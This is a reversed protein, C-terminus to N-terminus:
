HLHCKSCPHAFGSVLDMISFPKGKVVRDHVDEVAEKLLSPTPEEDEDYPITSRHVFDAVEGVKQALSAITTAM